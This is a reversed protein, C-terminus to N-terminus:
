RLCSHDDIRGFRWLPCVTVPLISPDSWGGAVVGVHVAPSSYDKGIRKIADKDDSKGFVLLSFM